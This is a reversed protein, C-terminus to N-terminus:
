KKYGAANASTVHETGTDIRAEVAEATADFGVVVIGAAGKRAAIAEIAGLAMRDNTAFVAKIDPHATLINEMVTLGLSRESNAPQRAVVGEIALLPGREPVSGSAPM